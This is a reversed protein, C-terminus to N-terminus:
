NPDFDVDNISDILENLDTTGAPIPVVETKARIMEMEAFWQKFDFRPEEKEAMHVTVPNDSESFFTLMREVLQANIQKPDIVFTAEM